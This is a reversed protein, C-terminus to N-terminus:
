LEFTKDMIYNTTDAYYVARVAEMFKQVGVGYDSMSNNIIKEVVDSDMKNTKSKKTPSGLGASNSFGVVNEYGIRLISLRNSGYMNNLVINNRGRYQVDIDGCLVTGDEAIYVSGILTRYIYYKGHQSYIFADVGKINSLTGTLEQFERYMKEDWVILPEDGYSVKGIDHRRTNWHPWKKLLEQNTLRM